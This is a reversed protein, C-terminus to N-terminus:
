VMNNRYRLKKNEKKPKKKRKVVEKLRTDHM